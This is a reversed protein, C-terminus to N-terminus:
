TLKLRTFTFYSEQSSHGRRETWPVSSTPKISETQADSLGSLHPVAMVGLLHLEDVTWTNHRSACPKVVHTNETKCVLSM